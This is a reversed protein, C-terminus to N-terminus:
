LLCFLEIPHNLLRTPERPEPDTIPEPQEPERVPERPQPLSDPPLPISDPLHDPDLPDYPTTPPIDPKNTSDFVNNITKLARFSHM